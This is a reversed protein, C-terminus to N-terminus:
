VLLEDADILRYSTSRGGSPNQVLIGQRKLEQIDRLATDNSCKAIKAYKSTNMFGEFNDLMRNIILKQRENIQVQNAKDWIKAKFLVDKQLKDTNEIARGLCGM